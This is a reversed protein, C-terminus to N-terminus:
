GSRLTLIAIDPPAGVRVPPGWFGAGRTTFLQTEGHQSLGALAGQQAIVAYHFPWIQGGHTHGSLQLDVGAQEAAVVQRPQHALLVVADDARRGGLALTLDAPDDYDMGTWDNIGAVLLRDAGRTIVVASNALVSMGLTPLFEVWFESGSYYEHNGTTFVVGDPARLDGLPAAADRLQAVSGDVMDGVFTVLDPQEANILDVSQQSLSRGSIAGLHLDAILAIRYGDFAPPLRRLAITQRVVSPGALAQSIGYGVTATAAVGAVVAIGRSLARRRTVRAAAPPPSVPSSGPPPPGGAVSVAPRARSGVALRVGLRVLEGVALALCLYLVAALWVNGVFHLPLWGNLPETRQTAVAALFVAFLVAIVGGGVLRWRRSAGTSHVLRFYVYVNGALVLLGLPILFSM